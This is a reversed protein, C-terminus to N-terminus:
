RPRALTMLRDGPGELWFLHARDLVLSRIDHKTEYITAVRGGARPARRIFKRSPRGYLGPSGYYEVDVRYDYTGDSLLSLRPDKEVPGGARAVRLLGLGKTWTHGEPTYHGASLVRVHGDDLVIETPSDLGRAVVAPAGGAKPLRKVVGDMQYRYDTGHSDDAAFSGYETWYLDGDDAALDRPFRLGHALVTPSGGARPVEVIAGGTYRENVSDLRVDDCPSGCTLVYLSQEGVVLAIPNAEEPAAVTLVSAVAGGDKPVSRVADMGVDVKHQTWYVRDGGLAIADPPHQRADFDEVRYPVLLKERAGDKDVRHIGDVAAGFVYRDDLALRAVDWHSALQRPRGCGIASLALAAATRRGV